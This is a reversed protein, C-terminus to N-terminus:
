ACSPTESPSPAALAAGATAALARAALVAAQGLALGGDNAPVQRHTLVTLASDELRRVLQELLIRNQLVGGSLAVTRLCGATGQAARLYRVMRVIAIALGKHFRAAVVGV